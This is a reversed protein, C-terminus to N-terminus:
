SSDWNLQNKAEHKLGTLSKKATTTTTKTTETSEFKQEKIKYIDLLPNEGGTEEFSFFALVVFCRIM